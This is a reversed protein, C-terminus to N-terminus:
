FLQKTGTKNRVRMRTKCGLNRLVEAIDKDKDIADKLMQFIFIYVKMAQM